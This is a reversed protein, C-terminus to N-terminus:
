SNPVFTKGCVMKGADLNYGHEGSSYYSFIEFVNSFVSWYWSKMGTKSSGVGEGQQVDITWLLFSFSSIWTGPQLLWGHIISLLVCSIVMIQSNFLWWNWIKMGTKSFCGGMRTSCSINVILFQVIIDMYRSTGTMWSYNIFVCSIVMIKLQSNFM